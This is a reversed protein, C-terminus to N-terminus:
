KDAEMIQQGIWEAVQPVVANGLGRLRDVRGSIGDVVRGVSPEVEWWDCKAISGSLQREHEPQSLGASYTHAMNGTHKGAAGTIYRDHKAHNDGRTERRQCKANDVDRKAGDGAFNSNRQDASRQSQEGRGQQCGNTYAVLFVRYRIHPAGLAAAPICDWEADYGSQALDRLVRGFFRGSESSLLGPVNEALVWKPKFERIIRSFEGWLDREDESAKRKGALSHPQCPFGGCILDVTGDLSSRGFTTVDNFRPVNPWHKALVKQCFQDREVQAICTMGSRDLGLDLGGIGSFLSVYNM